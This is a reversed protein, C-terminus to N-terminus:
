LVCPFSLVITHLVFAEVRFKQQQLYYSRITNIITSIVNQIQRTLSYQGVKSSNHLYVAPLHLYPLFYSIITFKSIQRFEFLHVLM